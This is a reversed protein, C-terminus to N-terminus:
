ILTWGAALAGYEAKEWTDASGIVVVDNEELELQKTIQNFIEPFDRAVNESIGPQILMQNKFILTTAGKAGALIAADRQEIGTKVKDGCGKILMAINYRALTLESQELKVKRPFISQFDNWITEGKETLLCGPKSTIILGADILRNLLTRTAGEGTGLERSLKGRGIPGEKATLELVKIVHFVSFSPSPGPAKEKLLGELLKKITM